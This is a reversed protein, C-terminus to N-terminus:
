DIEKEIAECVTRLVKLRAFKKDDAEVITWPAHDTHTRDIMERAAVHYQDYLKRNVWDEPDVKYRKLKDSDRARFRELQEAKSM